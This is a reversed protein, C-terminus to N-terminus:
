PGWFNKNKKQDTTMVVIYFVGDDGERRHSRLLELKGYPPKPTKKAYKKRPPALNLYAICGSVIEEDTMGQDAYPAFDGELYSIVAYRKDTVGVYTSSSYRGKRLKDPNWDPLMAGYEPISRLECPIPDCHTQAKASARKRKRAQAM